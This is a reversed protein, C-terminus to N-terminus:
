GILLTVPIMLAAAKLPWIWGEAYVLVALTALCAALVLEHPGIRFHKRM